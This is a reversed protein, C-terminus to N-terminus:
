AALAAASVIAPGATKSKSKARGADHREIGLYGRRLRNASELALELKQQATRDIEAVLKCGSHQLVEKAIALLEQWDHWVGIADKVEGLSDVFKGRNEAMQLVYRLEKVKLRFPHLNERNLTPWRRLEAELGLALATARDAWDQRRSDSKASFKKKEPRMAKRLFKADTKLAKSLAAYHLRIGKELKRVQRGREEGLHELLRVMCEEESQVLPQAAFQTLVDMDRVQGARRRLPKLRRILQRENKRSDLGLADVVAEFRRTRTRLKHVLEPTSDERLRKLSKRLKLPQRCLAESDLSMSTEIVRRPRGDREIQDSVLPM